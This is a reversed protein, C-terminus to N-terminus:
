PDPSFCRGCQTNNVKLSSCLLGTVHSGFLIASRARCFHTFITTRVCNGRTVLFAKHLCTSAKRFCSRSVLASSAFSGPVRTHCFLAENKWRLGSHGLDALSVRRCWTPPSPGQRTPSSHRHKASAADPSLDPAASCFPRPVLQTPVLDLALRKQSLKWVHM